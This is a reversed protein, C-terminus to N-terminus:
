LHKYPRLTLSPLKKGSNPEDNDAGIFHDLQFGSRLNFMNGQEKNYACVHVYLPMCLCKWLVLCPQTTVNCTIPIVYDSKKKKKFYSFDAWIKNSFLKIDNHNSKSLM